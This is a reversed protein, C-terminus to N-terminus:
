SPRVEVAVEAIQPGSETSATIRISTLDTIRHARFTWETKRHHSGKGLTLLKASGHLELVEEDFGAEMDCM